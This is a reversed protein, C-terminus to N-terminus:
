IILCQIAILSSTQQVKWELKQCPFLNFNNKDLKTYNNDNDFKFRIIYANNIGVISIDNNTVLDCLYIYAIDSILTPAIWEKNSSEYVETINSLNHRMQNIDSLIEQTIRLYMNVEIDYNKKNSNRRYNIIKGVIANNEVQTTYQYVVYTGTPVMADLQPLHITTLWDM